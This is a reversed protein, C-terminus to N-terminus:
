PPSRHRDVTGHERTVKVFGNLFGTEEFRNSMCGEECVVVRVMGNVELCCTIPLAMEGEMETITAETMNFDVLTYKITIITRFKDNM